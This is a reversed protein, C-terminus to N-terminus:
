STNSIDSVRESAQKSAKEAVGCGVSRGVILRIKWAGCFDGSARQALIIRRDRERERERERGQATDREVTRSSSVM